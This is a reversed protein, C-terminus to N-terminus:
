DSSFKGTGPSAIAVLKLLARRSATRYRHLHELSVDASSGDLASKLCNGELQVARRQHAVEVVVSRVLEDGEAHNQGYQHRVLAYVGQLEPDIPVGDSGFLLTESRLGHRWANGRTRAKGEATRPGRSRQANRRNAEIKRQLIQRPKGPSRTVSGDEKNNRVSTPESGAACRARERAAHEREPHSLVSPENSESNQKEVAKRDKNRTM